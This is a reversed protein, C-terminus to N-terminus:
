EAIAVAGGTATESLDAPVVGSDGLFAFVLVGLVILGVVVMAAGVNSDSRRQRTHSASLAQRYPNNRDFDEM